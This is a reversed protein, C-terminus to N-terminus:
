RNLKAAGAARSPRPALKVLAVIAPGPDAENRLGEATWGAWQSGTVVLVGGPAAAALAVDHLPEGKLLTETAELRECDASITLHLLRHPQDGNYTAVAALHDRVGLSVLADIGAVKLGTVKLPHSEGGALEVRHLGTAYDSVVMVDLPCLAMGQASTVGKPRAVLELRPEGRGGPALVWIAGTAGDSAYVAGAPDVVVDGFQVAEGPPGPYRALIRGDALAVKLLGTRRAGPSGPLGGWAEAAWLVGRAGDIALGFIPGTAPDAALFPALKGDRIEFITKAAVASVFTRGEHHAIGEILLDRRDDQVLVTVPPPAAQATTALFLALAAARALMAANLIM